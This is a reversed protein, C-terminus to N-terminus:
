HRRMFREIAEATIAGLHRGLLEGQPSIFYTTPLGTINGFPSRQRLVPLVPYNIMQQEAFQQLETISLEDMNMGLVVADQRHNDQFLVLEPIEELCPPCWSAWYNVVIWRGRYDAATHLNGELDRYSFEIPAASSVSALSLLLLLGGVRWRDTVSLWGFLPGRVSGQQRQM